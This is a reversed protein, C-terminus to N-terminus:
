STYKRGLFISYLCLFSTLTLVLFFSHFSAYFYSFWSLPLILLAPYPLFPFNKSSTVSATWNLETAWNQRVIQSGTSQLVGPKGTWWWSRSSAWVWAWRTPSAMWDDWGRDNGRSRRGEIKGLLLTKELSDTRQMMKGWYQHLFPM